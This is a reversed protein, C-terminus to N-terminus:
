VNTNDPITVDAVFSASNICDPVNTPRSPDLTPTQAALPTASTETASTDPPPVTFTETLVPAETSSILATAVPSETATVTATEAPAQGSCASLVLALLATVVFLKKIMKM